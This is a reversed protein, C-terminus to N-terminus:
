QGTVEQVWLPLFAQHRVGFAGAGILPFIFELFGTSFVWVPHFALTGATLHVFLACIGVAVALGISPFALVNGV